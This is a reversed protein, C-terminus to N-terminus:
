PGRKEVMTVGKEMVIGEMMTGGPGGMEMM